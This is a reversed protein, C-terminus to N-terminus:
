VELASPGEYWRLVCRDRPTAPIGGNGVWADDPDDDLVDVGAVGAARPGFPVPAWPNVWADVRWAAGVRGLRLLGAPGGLTPDCFVTAAPSTFWTERAPAGPTVRTEV